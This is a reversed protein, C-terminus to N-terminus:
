IKSSFIELIHFHAGRGAAVCHCALLDVVEEVCKYLRRVPSQEQSLPNMTIHLLHDMVRSAPVETWGRGTFNLDKEKSTEVKGREEGIAVDIQRHFTRQLVSRTQCAM